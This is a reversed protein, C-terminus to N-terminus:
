MPKALRFGVNLFRTYPSRRSRDALRCEKAANGYSGGRSLRSPGTGGQPDEVPGYPYDGSKDNCWEYVNGVMDYLGWINPKKQAVPQTSNGSNCGYWGIADLNPGNDCGEDSISIPGNYFATISGARAAYEWQSETPLRYGTCGTFMVVSTCSFDDGLTGSCTGQGNYCPILGEDHSLWNAFSAAEQWTVSDVPHNNGSHVRSPNDGRGKNVVVSNWHENTVETTQLYFSQTLIVVHQLEDSSLSRGPEAPWVPLHDSDGTGKPSGMVFSGSPILSFKMGISNSIIESGPKVEPPNGTLPIVVVKDAAFSSSFSLNLLFIVSVSIKQIKM